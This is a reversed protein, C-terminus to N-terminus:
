AAQTRLARPECRLWVVNTGDALSFKISLGYERAETFLTPPVDWRFNYGTTDLTWSETQLTDFIVDAVTLTGNGVETTEDATKWFSYAIASVDAQLLAQSDLGVMRAMLRVSGDEMVRFQYIRANM